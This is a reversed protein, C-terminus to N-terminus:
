SPTMAMREGSANSGANGRLNDDFNSGYLDEISVYSDGTAIGTNNAALQLDATLGATADTYQARDTGTGGNLLDSGGGGLLTDNGDMGYLSDHGNRGFILDNGDAGWIHNSGGDGRLDDNFNSGYLDEISFFSDGGAFGTNNAATQLDATLGATADSYQARDTGTGGGLLDAGAGGVLTDNGDGGNLVDGGKGGALLNTGADGTLTDASRTGNVNEIDSLFTIHGGSLTAKGANLDVTAANTFGAGVDFQDTGSGGNVTDHGASAIITDNGSGGNVRDYGGGGDLLDNGSGGKLTDDGTDGQLRDAGSGGAIADDGEWGILTDNGSLGQVTDDGYGGNIRNAIETGQRFVDILPRSGYIVYSAGVAGFAGSAGVILDAFGDGNVDGAGAVSRGSHDQFAAGNIQFGNTGDLASLELTSAFGSAKGFVVYSAGSNTFGNSRARFAGIILDAFGDGNVDGAGAVSSGSFDSGAEGSIQFGDSGSLASLEVNSTFGGAKGFVVYSAGSDSGNPDAGFAGVIFDAFGDGNVDGAGAVSLGSRDFTREGSIQFGNTGDLASLEFSSSFGSAKGLVVYSAGSYTGNPDALFAGIILDAFGDGNVDGASAVSYASYDAAAEGNIQFGDSGNLASLSLSSSFGSTKGFVVYSAGSRSGNPDAGYAGIILDAFGDGNVDGASAVPFGSYDGAAVGVIRFGNSGNLASLEFNAAFGSAKGFVVYSGGINGFAHDAGVIVDAFGDGNVDGASAVAHGSWDQFAAGNIQFGNSGNLASLELSSAFGAAKGFVVYSAGSYSGNPDARFAGIILDAFGDGNVDGAGAVSFGSYDGTAEGIIRFGNTGDIASLEIVSPYTPM